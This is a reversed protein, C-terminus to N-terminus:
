STSVASSRGSLYDATSITPRFRSRARCPQAAPPISSRSFQATAQAPNAQAITINNPITVGGALFIQSTNISSNNLAVTIPGTGFANSADAEISQKSLTTGGSYTGPSHLHLTWVNGGVTNDIGTNLASKEAAPEM